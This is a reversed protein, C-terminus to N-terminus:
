DAIKSARNVPNRPSPKTLLRDVGVTWASEGLDMMHSLIRAM